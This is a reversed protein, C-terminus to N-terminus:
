LQTRAGLETRAVDGLRVLETGNGKLVIENFQEPELLRGKTSIALQFEQGEM